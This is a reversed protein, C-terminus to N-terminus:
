ASAQFLQSGSKCPGCVSTIKKTWDDMEKPEGVLCAILSLGENHIMDFPIGKLHAWIPVDALFLSYNSNESWVSIHFMTTEVHWIRKQNVKQRIFDNPIRVLMKRELPNLHIELRQGKGWMHSLVSQVLGYSPTKGCFYGVVFERHLAAGRQFVEDPILIRHTGNPSFFPPALRKLSKDSAKRMRTAWSDVTPNLNPVTSPVQIVPSSIPPNQLQPQGSDFSKLLLNGAIDSKNDSDLQPCSMEMPFGPSPLIGSDTSPKM